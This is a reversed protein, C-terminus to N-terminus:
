PDRLGALEPRVPGRQPSSGRGGDDKGSDAKGGPLADQASESVVVGSRPCGDDGGHPRGGRGAQPLEGAVVPDLM